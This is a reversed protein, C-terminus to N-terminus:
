ALAAAMSNPKVTMRIPTAPLASLPRMVRWRTSQTCFPLDRKIAAFTRRMEALHTNYAKRVTAATMQIYGKTQISVAENLVWSSNQPLPSFMKGWCGVSSFKTREQFLALKLWYKRLVMMTVTQATTM